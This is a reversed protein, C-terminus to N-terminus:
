KILLARKGDVLKAGTIEIEDKLDKSLAVKDVVKSEPIVRFYKAPIQSEDVVEVAKTAVKLTLKFLGLDLKDKSTAEMGAKIYDILNESSSSISKKLATLRDIEKKIGDEDAQLQRVVMMCNRAKVDFEANISELTDKVDDASLEGADVLQLLQVYEQAIDFLRM